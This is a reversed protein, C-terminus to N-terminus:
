PEHDFSLLREALGSKGCPVVSDGHGSDGSWGAVAPEVPSFEAGFCDSGRTPIAEPQAPVRPECPQVEPSPGTPGVTYPPVASPAPVHGTPCGCRFCRNRVPWVREQGCASCTWQGPIDPQQQRLRQAGGRLRGTSRLTCDRGIRIDKITDHMGVNKVNLSIVVDMENMREDLIEWIMTDESVRHTTTHGDLGNMFITKEVRLSQNVVVSQPSRIAKDVLQKVSVPVDVRGSAEGLGLSMSGDTDHRDKGKSDVHDQHLHLGCLM